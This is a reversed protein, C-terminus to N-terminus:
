RTTFRTTRPSPSKRTGWSTRSLSAFAGLRTMSCSPLAATRAAACSSHVTPTRPTSRSVPSARPTPCRPVHSTNGLSLSLSHSFTLSQKPHTNARARTHAHTLVNARAFSIEIIRMDDSQESVGHTSPRALRAPPAASGLPFPLCMTTSMLHTVIVSHPQCVSLDDHKFFVVHTTPQKTVTKCVSCHCVHNDIPEADSTTAVHACGGM